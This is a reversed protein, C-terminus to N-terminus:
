VPAPGDGESTVDEIRLTPEYGNSRMADLIKEVEDDIRSAQIEELEAEVRAEVVRAHRWVKSRRRM